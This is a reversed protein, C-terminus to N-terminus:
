KAARAAAAHKAASKAADPRSVGPTAALMETVHATAKDCEGVLVRLWNADLGLTCAHDRIALVASARYPHRRLAILATVLEVIVRETESAPDIVSAVMPPLAWREIAMAYAQPRVADVATAVEEDPCRACRGDLLPAAIARLGLMPAMGAIISRLFVRDYRPVNRAQALWSATFAVVLADRHVGRWLEPFLEFEARSGVEYLSSASVAAAISGVEAVGLALLAGRLDDFGGRKVAVSSALRVIQAIIAPEWHLARVLENLDLDPNEVLELVRTAASPFPPITLTSTALEALICQELVAVVEPDPTRDAVGGVAAVVDEATLTPKAAPRAPEPAPAAPKAPAATQKPRRGLLSRLWGLMGTPEAAKQV